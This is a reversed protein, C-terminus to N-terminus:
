NKWHEAAWARVEAARWVRGLDLWAYPEPFGPRNTIRRAKRPTVTLTLAVEGLGMVDPISVQGPRACTRGAAIAEAVLRARLEALEGEDMANAGLPDRQEDRWEHAAAIADQHTEEPTM